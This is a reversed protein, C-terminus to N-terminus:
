TVWKYKNKAWEIHDKIEKLSANCKLPKDQNDPYRAECGPYGCKVCEIRYDTKICM